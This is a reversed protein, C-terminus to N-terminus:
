VTVLDLLDAERPHRAILVRAAGAASLPEAVAQSLCFQAPALAKDLLGAAKTCDVYIAASRRSFHLVGDIEGAELAEHAIGPLESAAKARYAVCTTVAIGAEALEAALGCARDEGALYLLRAGARLHQSILRALSAADGDASVV